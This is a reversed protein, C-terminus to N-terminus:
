GEGDEDDKGNEIEQQENLIRISAITGGVVAIPALIFQMFPIILWLGFGSITWFNRMSFQLRQRFTWGRRALPYDCFEWGLLFAPALLALVNLGPIVLAILMFVAIFAVKKLEEFILALAKHWPAEVIEGTIDREVACSVYEYLPASIISTLLLPPVFSLVFMVVALLAYLLYYLPLYVLSSPKDFLISTILYDFNHWLLGLMMALVVLGLILPVFLLALHRPHNRLWRWGEHYVKVGAVLRVYSQQLSKLM